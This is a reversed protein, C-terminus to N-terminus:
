SNSEIFLITYIYCIHTHVPSHGYVYIYFETIFLFVQCTCPHVKFIMNFSLFGVYTMIATTYSISLLCIWIFPTLSKQPSPLLTISFLLEMIPVSSRRHHHFHGSVVCHHYSCLLSYM